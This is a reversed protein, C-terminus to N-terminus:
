EAASLHRLAALHKEYHRWRGISGGYIPQRVQWKSHTIVNRKTSHFQLCNPDWPLGAFELMRRSWREPENVLAEYDIELLLESPLARRWHEMLRLYECYYHGLSDLDNAYAHSQAFYQFYISLCTDLPNRRIHIFRAQPLAAHILGACMFDSPMKNVVRHANGPLASLRALYDRGMEAFQPIEKPPVSSEYRVLASQWHTSEGTGSVSPHSALIQEALTTGSRPMGIIFMACESADGGRPVQGTLPSNFDTIIRAVRTSHKAKDYVLGYRKTLDNARRYNSFADDYEGLDDFYKGLAFRLAIEHRLPMSKALYAQVGAFWDEDRRTMRRNTAINLYAFPYRADLALVDRCLRESVDFAGRDAQLVSQLSMAEIFTPDLELATKCSVEAEAPRGLLRQVTGLGLHAAADRPDAAVARQYSSMAPDLRRLELLAHGLNCHGGSRHPALRVAREFLVIAEALQGADRLANALNNLQDVDDRNFSLACRFSAIADVNRGLASCILGRNNHAAALRGNLAIAHETAILADTLAGTLRLANGFNFHVEACRPDIQLARRYCDLADAYRTLQVFTNGLNNWPQLLHPSLRLAQQYLRVADETLGSSRSADAADILARVNDPQLQLLQRLSVLASDWKGNELMAAALNAHTEPDKPLLEVARRLAPVADKGRRLLTVSLVKWLIGARPHIELLSHAMEEAERLRQASILSVLTDISTANLPPTLSM